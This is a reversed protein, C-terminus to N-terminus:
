KLIFRFIPIIRGSIVDSEKEGIQTGGLSLYFPVANPDAAIVFSSIKSESLEYLLAQWLNKAIGLKMYDPHIFLYGDSVEESQVKKRCWFGIIQNNLEAILTVSSNIIEANIILDKKWLDMWELPYGWSKKSLFALETLKDSDEEKALRIKYDVNIRDGHAKPTSILLFELDTNAFNHISHVNDQTLNNM